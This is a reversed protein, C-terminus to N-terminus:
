DECIGTCFEKWSDVSSCHWRKEAERASSLQSTAETRKKIVGRCPGCLYSRKGWQMRLRQQLFTNVLGNGLFPDSIVAWRVITTYCHSYISCYQLECVFFLTCIFSHLYMFESTPLPSSYKHFCSTIDCM